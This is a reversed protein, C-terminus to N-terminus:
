SVLPSVTVTLLTISSTSLRPKTTCPTTPELRPSPPPDSSKTVTITGIACSEGRKLLNSCTSRDCPMQGLARLWDKIVPFANVLLWHVLLRIKVAKFRKLASASHVLNLSLGASFLGHPHSCFLHPKKQCDIPNSSSSKTEKKTDRTDATDKDADGAGAGADREDDGVVILRWGNTKAVELSGVWDYVGPVFPQPGFLYGMLFYSAIGVRTATSGFVLLLACISGSVVWSGFTFTVLLVGQLRSWSSFPSDVVKNAKFEHGMRERNALHERWLLSGPKTEGTLWSMPVHWTPSKFQTFMTVYVCTTRTV